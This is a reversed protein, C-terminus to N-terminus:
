CNFILCWLVISFLPLCLNDIQSTVAELVVIPIFIFVFERKILDYCDTEVKDFDFDRLRFAVTCIAMTILMAISGEVTRRSEPWRSRGFFSGFIAGAADGIGLTLIGLYPLLRIASNRDHMTGNRDEVAEMITTDYTDYTCTTCCYYQEFWLPLACGIILAVHTFVFGGDKAGLDKEDFFTQFFDNLSM